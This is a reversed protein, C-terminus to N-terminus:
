AAQHPSGASGVRAPPWAPQLPSWRPYWRLLHPLPDSLLRWPMLYVLIHALGTDAVKFSSRHGESPYWRFISSKLSTLLSSIRWCRCLILYTCALSVPNKDTFASLKDWPPCKKDEWSTRDDTPSPFGIANWHHEFENLLSNEPCPEAELPSMSFGLGSLETHYDWCFAPLVSLLVWPVNVLPQHREWQHRGVTPRQLSLQHEQLNLGSPRHIFLLKIEQLVSLNQGSSNWEFPLFILSAKQLAPM